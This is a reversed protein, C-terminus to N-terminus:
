EKNKPTAYVVGAGALAALAVYIWEEVTVGGSLASALSVLGGALGGGVAKYYPALKDM